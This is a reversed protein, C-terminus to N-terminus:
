SGGYAHRLSRGRARGTGQATEYMSKALGQMGAGVTKLDVGSQKAILAFSSLEAANTGYQMAMDHLKASFEQAAEINNAFFELTKVSVIGAALGQIANNAVDMAREIKQATQATLYEARGMALQLNAIDGAISIVLDGLSARNAM